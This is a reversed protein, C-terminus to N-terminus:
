RKKAGELQKITEAVLKKKADNKSVEMFHKLVPLAEDYKKLGILANGKGLLAKDSDPRLALIQEYAALADAWKTQKEYAVAIQDLVAPKYAANQTVEVFKKLTEVAQDYKEAKLENQGLALLIQEDAPALEHAKEFCAQAKDYQGQNFRLLGLAFATDKFGPDAAYIAEYQEAALDANGAKEYIQALDYRAENQSPDMAVARKMTELVKEPQGMEHYCTAEYLLPQASFPNLEAAKEFAEIAKPYDKLKYHAVGLNVYLGDTVQGAEIFKGALEIAKQYDGKTILDEIKLADKAQDDKSKDKAALAFSASLCLAVVGLM